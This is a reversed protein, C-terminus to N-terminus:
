GAGGSCTLRTTPGLPLGASADTDYLSFGVVALSGCALAKIADFLVHKVLFYKELAMSVPSFVDVCLKSFIM